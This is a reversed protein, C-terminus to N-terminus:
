RGFCTRSHATSHCPSLLVTTCPPLPVPPCPLTEGEWFASEFRCGVRAAVIEPRPSRLRCDRTTTVAFPVATALRASQSVRGADVALFVALGGIFVLPLAQTAYWRRAADCPSYAICFSPMLSCSLTLLGAVPEPWPWPPFGACGAELVRRGELCQRSEPFAGPASLASRPWWSIM